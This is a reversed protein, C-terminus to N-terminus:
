NFNYSPHKSNHCNKCLTKGSVNSNIHYDIVMETIVDKEEFSHEKHSDTFMSIIEAMTEKNHHVELKSTSNCETCKFGDAVLIPYVWDTYLRKRARVLPNIDSTGGKWQSHNKGYLTPITGNLRNTKMTISYSERREEAWGNKSNSKGYAAVRIDTEKTLGANWVMRDGSEFQKRRTESSKKIANKNHGWNNHVRSVHGRVWNNKVETGCGCNCYRIEKEM